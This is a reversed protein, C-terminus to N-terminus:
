YIRKAIAPGLNNVIGGPLRKWVRTMWHQDKLSFAPQRNSSFFLDKEEVPWQLKYQQVGSGKSSRGMSYISAKNAIADKIMESHLLYSPYLHNYDSLTSFWTNEYYGDYWM